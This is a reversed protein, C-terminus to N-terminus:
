YARARKKICTIFVLNIDHIVRYQIRYKGVRVRFVKEKPNIVRKVDKPFPNTQLKEIKYIIRYGIMKSIEMLFKDAQRSFEIEYM